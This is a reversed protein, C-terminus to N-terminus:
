AASSEVPTDERGGWEAWSGDYLAADTKGLRALALLLIAATIGSGCTTTVPRGVDVGAARFVEALEERSRMTGDERLVGAFPANLAGPMHGMRLGPRPEPAEGRFRPAPRADVVQEGDALAARVEELGRVLEGHRRAHFRAQAPAAPGSELPRHEARWKPFGGDLVRVEQHGMARFMWWARPASFVGAGDYLVISNRDSIGMAGVAAAFAEADPLMHPLGTSADSVADIDFFVAGPIHAQAFEVRADRGQAPLWWSADVASLRADGLQAHLQETTILPDSSPFM